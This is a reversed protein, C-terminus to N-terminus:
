DNLQHPESHSTDYLDSAKYNRNAHRLFVMLVAAVPLALLVGVFGALQGGALIAFIVAVPHLGIRDGVLLPTLLMGEIMQGIGFVGAVWLLPLWEHFQFWAALTAAVIGVIFGMYPVISALGAILGLTLALDLGVLRLGLSYIIALAVMVLLQGRLFAGIIEDCENGLSSATQEWQRPILNHIRAVLIDWDRLLYFTVVPILVVSALASIVAVGSSAMNSWVAKLVKGASSWNEKITAAFDIAPFSDKPLDFRQQLWPVVTNQFEEIWLPIKTALLELQHGVLIILVFLLAVIL